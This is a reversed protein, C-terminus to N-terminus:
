TTQADNGEGDEDDGETDNVDMAELRKPVPMNMHRLVLLMMDRIDILTDAITEAEAAGDMAAKALANLANAESKAIQEIEAMVAKEHLSVREQKPPIKAGDRPELM